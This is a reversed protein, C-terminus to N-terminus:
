SAVGLDRQMQAPDARRAQTGAPMQYWGPDIDYNEIQERIKINTYMGGMSQGQALLQTANFHFATEGPPLQM